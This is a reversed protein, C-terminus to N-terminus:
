VVPIVHQHVLCLRVMRLPLTVEVDNVEEQEDEITGYNIGYGEKKGCL